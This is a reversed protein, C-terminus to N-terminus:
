EIWEIKHSKYLDTKELVEKLIWAGRLEFVDEYHLVGIERAKAYDSESGDVHWGGMPSDFLIRVGSEYIPSDVIVVGTDGVKERFVRHHSSKIRVRDGVNYREYM